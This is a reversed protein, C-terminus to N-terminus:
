ASAGAVSELQERNMWKTVGSFAAYLLETHSVDFPHAVIMGLDGVSLGDLQDGEDVSVIRVQSGLALRAQVEGAAERAMAEYHTRTKDTNM